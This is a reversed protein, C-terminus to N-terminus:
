NLAFVVTREVHCQRFWAVSDTNPVLVNLILIEPLEDTAFSASIADSQNGSDVFDKDGLEEALRRGFYFQPIPV